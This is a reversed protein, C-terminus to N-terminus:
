NAAEADTRNNPRLVRVVMTLVWVLVTAGILGGILGFVSGTSLLAPLRLLVLVAILAWHYWRLSKDM